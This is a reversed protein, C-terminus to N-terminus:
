SNEDYKDGRLTVILTFVGIIPCLVIIVCSYLVVCFAIIAIVALYVLLGIISTVAGAASNRLWKSM